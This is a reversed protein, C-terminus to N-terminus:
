RVFDKHLENNPSSYVIQVDSINKMEFAAECYCLYYDWKRIFVDDFGLDKVKEINELFNERWLRLTKAYHIGIDILSVLHLNTLRSTADNMRGISPLLSGPFIHKQIWDVSSKFQDYRSDPSTIAQIGLLGNPKLLSGLKEFYTDLYADGLAEIM